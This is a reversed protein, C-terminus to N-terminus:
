HKWVEKDMYIYFTNEDGKFLREADRKGVEVSSGRIVPGPTAKELFYVRILGRTGGLESM